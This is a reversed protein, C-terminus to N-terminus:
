SSKRRAEIVARILEEKDEVTAILAEIGLELPKKAISDIQETEVLLEQQKKL